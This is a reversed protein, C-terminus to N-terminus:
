HELAPSRFVVHRQMLFSTLVIVAIVLLQGLVPGLLGTEVLLMLLLSNLVFVLAYTMVYKPLTYRAGSADSFTWFRNLAYGVFTCVAYEVALAPRYDMGWRVCLVYLLYGLGTNLTGAVVFRLFRRM